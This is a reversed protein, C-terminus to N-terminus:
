EHIRRADVGISGAAEGAARSKMDTETCFKAKVRALTEEFGVKEREQQLALIGTSAWNERVADKYPRVEQGLHQCANESMSLHEEHFMFGVGPEVGLADLAEPVTVAVGFLDGLNEAGGDLAEMVPDAVELAGFTEDEVVKPAEFVLEKGGPGAGLDEAAGDGEKLGGLAADM